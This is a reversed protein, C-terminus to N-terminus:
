YEVQVHIYIYIPCVKPLNANSQDKPIDQHFQSQSLELWGMCALMQHSSVRRIVNLARIIIITIIIVSALACVYLACMCDVFSQGAISRDYISCHVFRDRIPFAICLTHLEPLQLISSTRSFPQLYSPLSTANAFIRIFIRIRIRIRIRTRIRTCSIFISLPKEEEEEEEEEEDEDEEATREQRHKKREGSRDLSPRPQIRSRGRGRGWRGSQKRRRLDRGARGKGRRKKAIKRKV